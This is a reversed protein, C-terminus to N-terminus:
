QKEFVRSGAAIDAEQIIVSDATQTAKLPIPNCGGATGVSQPNIPAACNKCVVGNGSKYFGVAGCIECADFVTSIKGDPKEYLWFRVEVGNERAEYRHLDGDAVTSLPITVRGNV